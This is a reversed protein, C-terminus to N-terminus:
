LGRYGFAEGHMHRITVSVPALYVVKPFYKAEFIRAQLVMFKWAQKGLMARNFAHMNRLGLEGFKKKITLKDWPLWKIGKDEQKNSGWWFPNLM